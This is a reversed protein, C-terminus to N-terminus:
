PSLRKDHIICVEGTECTCFYAWSPNNVDQNMRKIPGASELRPIVRKRDIDMRCLLEERLAQKQEKGLVTNTTTTDYNDLLQENTLESWFQNM